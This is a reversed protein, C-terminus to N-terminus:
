WHPVPAVSVQTELVLVLGFEHPLLQVTQVAGSLLVTEQLAAPWHTTSQLVPKWRQLPTQTPLLEVFAQPVRSPRSQVAQGVPEAHTLAAHPALQPGPVWVQGPPLLM